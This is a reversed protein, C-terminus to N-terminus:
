IKKAEPVIPEQIPSDWYFGTRNLNKLRKKRSIPSLNFSINRAANIDSDSAYGCRDCM